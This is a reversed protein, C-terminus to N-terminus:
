KFFKKRELTMKPNINVGFTIKNWDNVSFEFGFSYETDM